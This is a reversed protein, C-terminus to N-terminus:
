QGTILIFYYIYRVGPHFRRHIYIGYVIEMDCGSTNMGISFISYILLIFWIIVNQLVYINKTKHFLTVHYYKLLLNYINYSKVQYFM